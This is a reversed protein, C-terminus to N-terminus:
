RVVGFLQDLCRVAVGFGQLVSAVWEEAHRAASVPLLKLVELIVKDGSLWRVPHILAM